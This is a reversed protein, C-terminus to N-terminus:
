DTVTVQMMADPQGIVAGNGGRGLKIADVVDMGSTVEGVVTYLGNLHPKPEFMIFFQSNASDLESSRAMGVIGREFSRDSIEAPLNDYKSGGTGVMRGNYANINAHQVDGTQAMFGDMVRHFAVGDYAGEAALTTIREAHGPAIDEYLDIAIVGNAGEGAVTIEIGAALAPGAALALAACVLKHM